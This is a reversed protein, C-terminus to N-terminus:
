AEHLRDTEVDVILVAHASLRGILRWGPGSPEPVAGYLIDIRPEPSRLPGILPVTPRLPEPRAPGEDSSLRIAAVVVLMQLLVASGVVLWRTGSM